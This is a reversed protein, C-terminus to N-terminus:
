AGPTCDLNLFVVGEVRSGPVAIEQIHVGFKKEVSNGDTRLPLFAASESLRCQEYNPRLQCVQGQSCQKAPGGAWGVERGVM